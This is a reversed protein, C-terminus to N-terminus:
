IVGDNGCRLYREVNLVVKLPFLYRFLDALIVQVFSASFGNMQVIQESEVFNAVYGDPDAGRRWLPTGQLPVRQGEMLPLLDDLLRNRMIM